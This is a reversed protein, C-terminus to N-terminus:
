RRSFGAISTLIRGPGGSEAIAPWSLEQMGTLHGSYVICNIARLKITFCDTSLRYLTLEIRVPGVM